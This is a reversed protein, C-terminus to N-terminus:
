VLRFKLQGGSLWRALSAERLQGATWRNGEIVLWSPQAELAPNRRM